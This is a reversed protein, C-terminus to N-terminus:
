APLKAYDANPADEILDRLAPTIRDTRIVLFTHCSGDQEQDYVDEVAGAVRMADHLAHDIDTWDDGNGTIDITTQNM